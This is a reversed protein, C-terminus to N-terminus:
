VFKSLIGSSLVTINYPTNKALTSPLYFSMTSANGVLTVSEIASAVKEAKSQASLQIQKETSQVLYDKLVFQFLLMFVLFCLGFVILFDLSIQAKTKM